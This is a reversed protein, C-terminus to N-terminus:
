DRLFAGTEVRLVDRLDSVTCYGQAISDSLGEVEKWVRQLDELSYGEKDRLVTFFMSWTMKIAETTAKASARKVDAQTAPRRRPNVKKSGM